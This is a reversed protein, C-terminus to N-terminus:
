PVTPNSPIKIKERYFAAAKPKGRKEYYRALKEYRANQRTHLEDLLQRIKKRYPSRRFTALFQKAEAEAQQMMGEDHETGARLMEAKIRLYEITDRDPGSPYDRRYEDCYFRTLLYEGAELHRRALRVIMKPIKPSNEHATRFAVYAEDEAATNKSSPAPPSPDAAPACGLILWAAGSM